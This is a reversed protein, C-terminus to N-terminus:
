IVAIDNPVQCIYINLDDINAAQNDHYHFIPTLCNGSTKFFCTIITADVAALPSTFLTPLYRTTNQTVDLWHTVAFPGTYSVSVVVFYTIPQPYVPLTINSESINRTAITVEMNSTSSYVHSTGLPNNADFGSAKIQCFDTYFGLGVYLRPKLLAFQYSVWLEGCVVNTGQFGSTAVSFKAFDWLRQDTGAPISGTRIYLMNQPTKSMDCEIPHVMMESPRCTTCYEASMMEVKSGYDPLTPNYQTSMIVSGLAINTSNTSECSTPKYTILMGEIIYEEYNAALQPLFEWLQPLGPNILYTELKFAGAVSSTRIDCVYERHSVVLGGSIDHNRVFPAQAGEYLANNQVNYAGFGTFTKIVDGAYHGFKVAHPALAAGVAPVGFSGAAAITGAGFGAGLVGGLWESRRRKRGFLLDDGM